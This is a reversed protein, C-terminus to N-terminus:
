SMISQLKFLLMCLLYMLLLYFSERVQPDVVNQVDVITVVGPRCGATEPSGATKKSVNAMGAGGSVGQGYSPKNGTLSNAVTESIM